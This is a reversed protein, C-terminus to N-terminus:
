SLEGHAKTDLSVRRRTPILFWRLSLSLVQHSIHCYHHQQWPRVSEWLCPPVLTSCLSLPATKGIHVIGVPSCLGRVSLSRGGRERKQKQKRSRRYQLLIRWEERRDYESKLHCTKFSKTPIVIYAYKIKFFVSLGLILISIHEM